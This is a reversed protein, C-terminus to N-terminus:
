LYGNNQLCNVALGCSAANLIQSCTGFVCAFCLVAGIGTPSGLCPAACSSCGFIASAELGGVCQVIDIGCDSFAGAADDIVGQVRVNSGQYTVDLPEVRDALADSETVAVASGGRVSVQYRESDIDALRPQDTTTLDRDTPQHYVDVYFGEINSRTYVQSEVSTSDTDIPVSSLATSQESPTATRVFITGGETGLLAAKSEQPIGRYKEPVSHSGRKTGNQHYTFVFSADIDGNLKGVYLDGSAFEIDTLTLDISEGTFKRMEARSTDTVGDLQLEQVISQMEPTQVLKSLQSQEVTKQAFVGQSMGVAALGAGATNRLIDRRSFADDNDHEESM